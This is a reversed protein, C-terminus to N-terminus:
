ENTNIGYIPADKIWLLGHDHDSGRNQFKIVWFFEYVQKFISPNRNFLTRFYSTKHDYYRACTIPDNCKLKTIHISQLNEIENLLNLKKACLTHM